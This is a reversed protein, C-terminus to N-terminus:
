FTYLLINIINKFPTVNDRWLLGGIVRRATYKYGFTIFIHVHKDTKTARTFYSNKFKNISYKQIYPQFEKSNVIEGSNTTIRRRWQRAFRQM